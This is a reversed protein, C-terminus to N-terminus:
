YYLRTCVYTYIRAVPLLIARKSCMCYDTIYDLVYMHIYEQLLIGRQSCMCYDTIYDLVYIHIYEQLLCCFLENLACATIM